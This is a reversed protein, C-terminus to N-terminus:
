NNQLNNQIYALLPNGNPKTAYGDKYLRSNTNSEDKDLFQNCPCVNSLIHKIQVM